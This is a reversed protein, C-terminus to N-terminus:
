LKWALYILTSNEDILEEGFFYYVLYLYVNNAMVIYRFYYVTRDRGPMYTFYLM